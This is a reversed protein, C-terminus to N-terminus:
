PNDLKYYPYGSLLPEMTNSTMVHVLSSPSENTSIEQEFCDHLALTLSTTLSISTLQVENLTPKTALAYSEEPCHTFRAAQNIAFSTTFGQHAKGYHSIARWMTHIPSKWALFIAAITFPQGQFHQQVDPLNLHGFLIGMSCYNDVHLLTKILVIMLLWISNMLWCAIDSSQWVLLLLM